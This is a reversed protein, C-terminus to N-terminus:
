VEGLGGSCLFLPALAGTIPPYRCFEPCSTAFARGEDKTYQPLPHHDLSMSIDRDDEPYSPISARYIPGPGLPSHGLSAKASIPRYTAFPSTKLASPTPAPLHSFPSHSPPPTSQPFLHPHPKLGDDRSSDTEVRSHEGLYLTQDGRGARYLSALLCSCLSKLGHLCHWPALM